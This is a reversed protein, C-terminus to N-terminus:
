SLEWRPDVMLLISDTDITATPGLHAELTRYGLTMLTSKGSGCAGSLLISKGM